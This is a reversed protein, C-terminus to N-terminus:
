QNTANDNGDNRLRGIILGMKFTVDEDCRVCNFGFIILHSAENDKTEIANSAVFIRRNFCAKTEIVTFM